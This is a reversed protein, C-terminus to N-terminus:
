ERRVIKDNIEKNVKPKGADEMELLAEEIRKKNMKETKEEAWKM